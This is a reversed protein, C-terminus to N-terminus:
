KKYKSKYFSRNELAFIRPTFEGESVPEFAKQITNMRADINDIMYLMEAEPIMPLVPSGYEYVGHHSLVMHRLLMVEESDDLHLEKAKTMIEAQMISIHGILKGEVTYESAIAGSLEVTKGIDHLLVGSYLLDQDLMPYLRCLQQALKLMGLVHTALGSYFDHHNRTAAPYEYFADKHDNLIESVIKHMIPNKISDLYQTIQEKLIKQSYPGEKVYDSVNIEGEAEKMKQVRFQLQKQHNLVDGTVEVIMGPSFRYLMDESVNWYKADINGSKDQFMFSLYPAGKATIGKNVSIVLVTITGKFGDQLEKILISM